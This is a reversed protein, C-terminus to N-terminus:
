SYTRSLLEELFVKSHLNDRRQQEKGGVEREIMMCGRYNAAKLKRFVGPFDVKGEGIATEAGLERTNTPFRGDKAHIGRVRDGFVEMADVPNGKGYLILNAVDLNVFVNHLGVDEIMRVLTIPTEQGTECLLSVGQERCYLAVEKVAAVAQPYLPDNPDEPIFGCHTHIASIGALRAVDAARKLAQVRAKRTDAPIIGITRPGKYFDFVRVGPNHESLAAAEVAYKELAMHLPAVVQPSLNDFGIQCTHLGLEAVERVVGDPTQGASVWVVKGLRIPIKESPTATRVSQASAPGIMKAACAVGVFQLLSRRKM